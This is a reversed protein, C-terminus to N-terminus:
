VQHAIFEKWSTPSGKSRNADSNSRESVASEFILM